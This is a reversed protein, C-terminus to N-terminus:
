HKRLVAPWQARPLNEAIYVGHWDGRAVRIAFHPDAGKVASVVVRDVVTRHDCDVVAGPGASRGQPAAQNVRSDFIYVVGHFRISGNCDGKNAATPESGPTVGCGSLVAFVSAAM